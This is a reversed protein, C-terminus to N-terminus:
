DTVVRFGLTNSAFDRERFNHYYANLAYVASLWNGGRIPFREADSDKPHYCWEDTNGAMDFCGVPSIGKPYQDVPTTHKSNKGYM